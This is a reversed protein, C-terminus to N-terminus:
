TEDTFFDPLFFTVSQDDLKLEDERKEQPQERATTREVSSSKEEPIFFDYVFGFESHSLTEEQDASQSSQKKEEKEM